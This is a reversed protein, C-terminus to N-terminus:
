VEEVTKPQEPIRFKKEVLKFIKELIITIIWYIIALAVYGELYRYDRGALIQNQYTIEIIGCTSALSTGKVLGIVSNCIGPLANELAEPVIIRRLVQGYTMGMATAAEIEGKDVSELAARFTQKFDPDAGFFGQLLRQLPRCIRFPNLRLEGFQASCRKFCAGLINQHLGIAFARNWNSLDVSHSSLPDVLKQMLFSRYPSVRQILDLQYSGTLGQCVPMQLQRVLRRIPFRHGQLFEHGPSLAKRIEARNCFALLVSIDRRMEILDDGPKCAAPDQDIIRAPDALELLGPHFHIATM